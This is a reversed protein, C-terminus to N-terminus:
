FGGFLGWRDPQGYVPRVFPGYPEWVSIVGDKEIEIKCPVRFGIEGPLRDKTPESISVIQLFSGGGFIEEMKTAPVGEYLRGAAEYDKAILAEIFERVVKVSIEEATLDGRALGIEQTTQDIRMADAPIDLVFVEPNIPQNYDLYKIRSLFEYQGDKLRYTEVQRVLKTEPDVQYVERKEPLENWIVTLIIPAEGSSPGQTEIRVEGSAQKQYLGEVILKPDFFDAPVKTLINKEGVVIAVNKGKLWAEAKGGHWVVEKPGDETSPFNYRLRLLEGNEDFEAWAEGLGDSTSECKLHIYRVGQNAEITQELAYATTASRFVGTVALVIVLIALAGAAFAPKWLKIRVSGFKREKEHETHDTKDIRQMIREKFKPSANIKTSPQLAAFTRTIEDYFESCQPCSELHAALESQMPDGTDADLLKLYHKRFKRCNM